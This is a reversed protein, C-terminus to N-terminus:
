RRLLGRRHPTALSSHEVPRPPYPVQAVRPPGIAVGLWGDAMVFQNVHLDRLRPDEALKNSVINVTRTRAFVKTFIARLPLRNRSSLREGILEVVGDRVLNAHTQSQDAIYHVRVAFDKWRYQDAHLEAVRLTLTVRGDTCRVRIPDRGALRVTVGEPIEEPVTADARNFRQNVERYLDRLDMPRNQLQLQDFTNNMASEHIQVSLLSDSPAQPRPTYAALQQNSALRYRVILRHETTEMAVATPKLDMRRLPELLKTDFSQEFELLRRHVEQDFMERARDAVKQEAENKAQHYMSAHQRLVLNRALQGLVPIGDFETEIGTLDNNSNVGAETNAVKIGRRDVLLPKRTRFSSVGQNFLTAPGKRAATESEVEGQAELDMRWNWRDPVLVIRLRSFTRSTGWVRAGMISERVNEVMVNPDPLLRNLLEESVAVRVNGNRYNADLERSLSQAEADPMRRMHHYANMLVAADVARSSAEYSEIAELLALYDVPQLCWMQLEDRYRAFPKETLLLRQEATLKPSELRSLAKTALERRQISARADTAAAARQVADVLLYDHWARTTDSEQLRELVGKVCSTMEEVDVPAETSAFQPHSVVEHLRQWVTTRRSLGHVARLLDTKLEWSALSEALKMGHRTDVAFSDLLPGIAPDDLSTTRSLEHLREMVSSAWQEIQRHGHLKGLMESLGDLNPWIGSHTRTVLPALEAVPTEIPAVPATEPTATVTSTASLTLSPDPVDTAQSSSSATPTEQTLSPVLSHDAFDSEPESSRLPNPETFDRVDREDPLAPLAVDVLEDVSAAPELAVPELAEVETRRVTVVPSVVSRDPARPTSQPPAGRWDELLRTAEQSILVSKAGADPVAPQRWMRLAMLVISFLGLAVVLYPWPSTRSLRDYQM